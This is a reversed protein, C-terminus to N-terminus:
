FIHLKNLKLISVFPMKNGGDKGGKKTTAKEEMGWSEGWLTLSPLWKITSGPEEEEMSITTEGSKIYPQREGKNQM